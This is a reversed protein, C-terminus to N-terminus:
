RRSMLICVRSNPDIYWIERFGVIEMGILSRCLFFFEFKFKIWWWWWWRKKERERVDKYVESSFCFVYLVKKQEDNKKELWIFFLHNILAWKKKEAIRSRVIIWRWVENIILSRYKEVDDNSDFIQYDYRKCKIEWHCLNWERIKLRSRFLSNLDLSSFLVSNAKFYIACNTWRILERASM